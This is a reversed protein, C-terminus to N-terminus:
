QVSASWTKELQFGKGVLFAHDALTCRNWLMLGLRHDERLNDFVVSLSAYGACLSAKELLFSVFVDRGKVFEFIAKNQDETPNKYRLQVFAEAISRNM